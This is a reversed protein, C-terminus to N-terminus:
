PLDPPSSTPQLDPFWERVANENVGHAATWWAVPYPWDDKHWPTEERESCSVFARRFDPRSQDVLIGAYGLIGILTRREAGNSRVTKALSKELDGLRAGDPLRRAIDLIDRLIAWDDQHPEPVATAKLMELDFAIYSPLSHRVGGWKFREFSLVNRDIIQSKNDGCYRCFVGNSDKAFRHGLLHRGVAFSGLASRLDLRRSSLSAVFAAVVAAKTTQAISDVAMRVAEDHSKSLSDFMLGRSKAYAFDEANTTFERRWGSSTWHREMLIKLARSDPIM